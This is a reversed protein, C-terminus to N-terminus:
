QGAGKTKPDESNPVLLSGIGQRAARENAARKVVPFQSYRTKLGMEKATNRSADLPIGLDFWQDVKGSTGPPYSKALTREHRLGLGDSEAPIARLTIENDIWFVRSHTLDLRVGDDTRELRWVIDVDDNKGSSGRQGRDKQKGAHDIRLWTINNAKLLRGTHLYFKRVTDADNEEGSVARSMTDIVVLDANWAQAQTLLENGGEHTDLDAGLLSAKIYHFRSYDDDISYGFDSLRECLDVETMEYDLYVVTIPPVPIDAWSRHGPIAAAAIAQLVVYSKGAKADAYLAHARGAALFPEILFQKEGQEGNWFDPSEVPMRALAIRSLEEAVIGEATTVIPAPTSILEGIRRPSSDVFQRAAAKFDGRHDRHAMYGYKDYARESPLWSVSTSFVYLLDSGAYNTSASIGDRPNKGPRVWFSVGNTTHSLIWGDRSLLGEWSNESNYRIVFDPVGRLLDIGRDLERIAAPTMDPTSKDIVLKVLWDPAPQVAEAEWPARGEAWRYAADGRKTPAANVQGGEGRVDLGPGLRNSASNHVDGEKPYSWFYHYGGSPTRAVLTEPLSSGGHETILAKFTEFGPKGNAVDVDLVWLGSERGTVICVGYESTSGGWWRRIAAEDASAHKQWEAIAPVKSEPRVPAVRWGQGAYMLAASLPDPYLSDGTM